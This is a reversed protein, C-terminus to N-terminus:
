GARSQRNPLTNTPRRIRKHPAKTVITPIPTVGVAINTDDYGQQSNNIAASQVRLNKTLEGITNELSSLRNDFGATDERLQSEAIQQETVESLIEKKLIKSGPPPANNSIVLKGNPDQYIYYDGPYGPRVVALAILWSFSLVLKLTTRANIRKM